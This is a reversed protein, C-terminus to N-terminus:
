AGQTTTQSLRIDQTKVHTSGGTVACGYPATTRLLIPSSLDLITNEDSRGACISLYRSHSDTKRHHVDMGDTGPAPTNCSHICATSELHSRLARACIGSRYTVPATTDVGRNSISIKRQTTNGGHRGHTPSQM